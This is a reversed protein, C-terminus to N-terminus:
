WDLMLPLKPRLDATRRRIAHDFTLRLVYESSQDFSILGTAQTLRAAESIPGPLPTSIAVGTLVKTSVGHVLPEHGQQARQRQFGLYFFAPETLPVDLAVGIALGEPLYQPVYDWTPFPARVAGREGGRLVVGFPCAGSQRM